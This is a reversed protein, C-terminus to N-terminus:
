AETYESYVRERERKICEPDDQARMRIARIESALAADRAASCKGHLPLAHEAWTKGCEPCVNATMVAPGVPQLTKM